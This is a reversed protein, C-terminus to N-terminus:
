EPHQMQQLQAQRVQQHAVSSLGILAFLILVTM